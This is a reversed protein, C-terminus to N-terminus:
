SVVLRIFLQLVGDDLVHKHHHPPVIIPKILYNRLVKNLVTNKIEDLM